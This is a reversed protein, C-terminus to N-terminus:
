LQFSFPDLLLFYSLMKPLGCVGINKAQLSLQPCFQALGPSQQPTCFRKPLLPLAVTLIQKIQQMQSIAIGILM